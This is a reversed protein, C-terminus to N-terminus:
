ILKNLQFIKKNIRNPTHYIINRTIVLLIKRKPWLNKNKM